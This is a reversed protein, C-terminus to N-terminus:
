LTTAQSNSVIENVIPQNVAVQKNLINLCGDLPLKDYHISIITQNGYYFNINFPTIVIERLGLLLLKNRLKDAFKKFSM